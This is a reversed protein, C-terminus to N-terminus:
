NGEDIWAEIAMPPQFVFVKLTYLKNM